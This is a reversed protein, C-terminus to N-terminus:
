APNEGKRLYFGVSLLTAFVLMAITVPGTVFWGIFLMFWGGLTILFAGAHANAVGFFSAILTILLAGILSYHWQESFGLDFASNVGANFTIVGSREFTETLGGSELNFKVLYTANNDVEQSFNGTSNTDTLTYLNTENTDNIWMTVNTTLYSTDNWTANIYGASLNIQQQTLFFEVNNEERTPDDWLSVYINYHTDRPTVTYTTDIDDETSVFELTYEQNQDLKFGIGGDAGTTGTFTATAADGKFVNVSVGEYVAGNFSKITFEVYHPSYYQSEDVRKQLLINKTTTEGDAPTVLQIESDEYDTKTAQISYTSTSDLGEFLYFGNSGTTVQDSYTDNYINVIANRLPEPDSNEREYVVGYIATGTGEGGTESITFNHTDSVTGM